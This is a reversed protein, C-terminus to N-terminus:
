DIKSKNIIQSYIVEGINHNNKIVDSRSKYKEKIDKIFNELTCILARESECFSKDYVDDDLICELLKVYEAKGTEAFSVNRISMENLDFIHFCKKFRAYAYVYNHYRKVCSYTEDSLYVSNIDYNPVYFIEPFAQSIKKRKVDIKLIMNACFPFLYLDGNKEFMDLYAYKEMCIYREPFETLETTEGNEENWLTIAKKEIHPLVFYRGAKKVGWYKNDKEGVHLETCTDDILNYCYLANYRDDVMYVRSDIMEYCKAAKINKQGFKREEIRNTCYDYELIYNDGYPFMLLTKDRKIVIENKFIFDKIQPEFVEMTDTEIEYKYIRKCNGLLLLLSDGLDIIHYNYLRDQFPPEYPITIIKQVECTARDVKILKNSDLQIFWVADDKICLAVPLFFAAFTKEIAYNEYLVPKGVAKYLQVVSSWDGYYADSIAIARHLDTSEDLIGVSEDQYQKRVERYRGELDPLMSQITSLELPHPRWWLVVEPHEKFIHFVWKMKEIQNERGQLMSTVSTNYLIVKKEHILEKWNDPFIKDTEM